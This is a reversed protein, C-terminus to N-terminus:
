VGFWEECEECTYSEIEGFKDIPKQTKVGCHPCFYGGEKPEYNPNISKEIADECGGIITMISDVEDNKNVPKICRKLADLHALALRLRENANM